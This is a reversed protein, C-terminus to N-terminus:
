TASDIAVKRHDHGSPRPINMCRSSRHRCLEVARPQRRAGTPRRALEDNEQMAIAGVTIVEDLEAADPLVQQGIGGENRGVRGFSATLPRSPLPERERELGLVLAPDADGFCRRDQRLENVLFEPAVVQRGACQRQDAEALAGHHRKM